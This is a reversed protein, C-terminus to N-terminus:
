RRTLGPFLSPLEAISMWGEGCKVREGQLQDFYQDLVTAREEALPPWCYDEEEWMAVGDARRRANRLAGSLAPGFPRLLTFDEMALRAQLEDLREARPVVSALSHGNAAKEGKTSCLLCL